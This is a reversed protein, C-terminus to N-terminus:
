PELTLGVPTGGNFAELTISGQYTAKKDTGTGSFPCLLGDKTKEVVMGSINLSYLVLKPTIGTKDEADISTNFGQAGSITAECTGGVIKIKKGAECQLVLEGAFHDASTEAGAGLVFECGEAEVTANIFGFATCKGYIMTTLMLSETPSATEAAGTKFQQDKCIAKSGDVTIEHSGIQNAEAKFEVNGVTMFKSAATASAPVVVAALALSLLILGIRCRMRALHSM